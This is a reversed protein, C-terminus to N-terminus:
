GITRGRVHSVLDRFASTDRATRDFYVFDEFMKAQQEVNAKLFRELMQSPDECREYAYPDVGSLTYSAQLPIAEWTVRRGGQRQWVHMAEHAFVSASRPDDLEVESAASGGRFHGRV